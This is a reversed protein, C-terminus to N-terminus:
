TVEVETFTTRERSELVLKGERITLQFTLMGFRVDLPDAHGWKDLAKDIAEHIERRTVPM